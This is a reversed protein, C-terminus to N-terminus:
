KTLIQSSNWSHSPSTMGSSGEIHLVQRLESFVENSYGGSMREERDGGAGFLIVPIWTYFKVPLANRVQSSSIGCM